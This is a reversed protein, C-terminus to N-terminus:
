TEDPFKGSFGFNKYISKLYNLKKRVLPHSNVNALLINSRTFLREAYVNFDNEENTLAYNVIYGLDLIRESTEDSFSADELCRFYYARSYDYSDSILKWTKRQFFSIKRFISSSFEHHLTEVYNDTEYRSSGYSKINLYINEGNSLGGVEVNSVRLNLVININSINRSIFGYDYSTLFSRIASTSSNIRNRAPQDAYFGSPLNIKDLNCLIKVGYQSSLSDIERNCEYAYCANPILLALIVLLRLM